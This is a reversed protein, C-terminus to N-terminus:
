PAREGEYTMAEEFAGTVGNSVAPVTTSIRYITGPVGDCLTFHYAKERFASQAFRPDNRFPAIVIEHGACTNGNITVETPHMDAHRFENRIRNRFYGSAGGTAEQMEVLDHELFYMLLPNGNFGMAPPFKMQHTGTLFQVWVDKRGDTRVDRIDATITDTFDGTGGQHTFAYELRVPRTIDKLHNSEFLAVQAPTLPPEDEAGTASAGAALMVAVGLTTGILAHSIVIENRGPFTLM